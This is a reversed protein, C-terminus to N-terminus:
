GNLDRWLLLVYSLMAAAMGGFLCIALWPNWKDQLSLIENVALARRQEIAPDDVTGALRDLRAARYVIRAAFTGPVVLLLTGLLGLLDSAFEIKM